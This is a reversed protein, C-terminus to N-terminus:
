EHNMDIDDDDDIPGADTASHTDESWSCSDQNNHTNNTATTTAASTTCGSAISTRAISSSRMSSCDDLALCATRRIPHPKNPNQPPTPPEPM